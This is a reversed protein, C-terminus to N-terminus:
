RTSRLELAPRASINQRDGVQFVPPFVRGRGPRARGTATSPGLGGAHAFDARAPRRGDVPRHESSSGPSTRCLARRRPRRRRSSGRRRRSAARARGALRRARGHVGRSIEKVAARRAKMAAMRWPAGAQRRCRSGPHRGDRGSGCAGAFCFGAGREWPGTGVGGRADGFRDDGDAVGGSVLFVGGPGPSGGAPGHSRGDCPV